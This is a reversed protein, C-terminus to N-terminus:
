RLMEEPSWLPRERQKAHTYTTTVRVERLKRMKAVRLQLQTLTKPRAAMYTIWNNWASLIIILKELRLLYPLYDLFKFSKMM